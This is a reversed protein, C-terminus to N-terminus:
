QRMGSPDVAMFHRQGFEEDRLPLAISAGRRLAREYVADVDDVEVTVLVGAPEVAFGEARESPRARRFRTARQPRGILAVAHVLRM